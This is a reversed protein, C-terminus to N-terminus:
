SPNLAVVCDEIGGASTTDWLSNAAGNNWTQVAARTQLPALAALMLSAAILPTYRKM